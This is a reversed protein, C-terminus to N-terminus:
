RRYKYKYNLKILRDAIMASEMRDGDWGGIKEMLEVMRNVKAKYVRPAVLVPQPDIVACSGLILVKARPQWTKWVKRARAIADERTLFRTSLMGRKWTSSGDSKNMQRAQYDTINHDLELKIGGITRLTAYYHSGTPWISLELYVFDSM